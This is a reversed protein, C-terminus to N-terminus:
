FSHSGALSSEVWSSLSLQFWPTKLSRALLGLKFAANMWKTRPMPNLSMVNILFLKWHQMVNGRRRERNIETHVICINTCIANWCELGVRLWLKQSFTRYCMWRIYCYYSSTTTVSVVLNLKDTNGYIRKYELMRLHQPMYLSTVVTVTLTHRSTRMNRCTPKITHKLKLLGFWNQCGIDCIHLLHVSIMDKALKSFWWKVSPLYLKHRQKSM